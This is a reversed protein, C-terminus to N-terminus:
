IFKKKRSSFEDIVVISLVFLQIGPIKYRVLAGFNYSSFGVAFAFFISFLLTSFILPDKFLCHILNKFGNRVFLRFTFLLILLSELASFLMVINKAEWLYPRFLTVNIAAPFKSLVGILTPEFSGLTYGSRTGIETSEEGKYHHKQYGAATETFQDLSYEPFIEGLTLFAYATIFLSFIIVAPTIVKKVVINKIKSRITLTYFLLISPILAIIVYAKVLSIIYLSIVIVLYNKIMNKRLYFIEILSSFILNMFGLVITDKMIGSGWFVVSPIFLICTAIKFKISPYIKILSNYLRFSCLYFIFSFLLTSALPNDFTIILFISAFKAVTLNSNEWSFYPIMSTFLSTDPNFTNASQFLIKLGVEFNEIIVQKILYGNYIYGFTDGVYNYYFIYILLFIIASSLKVFVGFIFIKFDKLYFIKFIFLSVLIIIVVSLTSLIFDEFTLSFHRVM